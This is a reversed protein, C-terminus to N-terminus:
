QGAGGHSNALNAGKSLLFTGNEDGYDREDKGKKPTRTNGRKDKIRKAAIVQTTGV